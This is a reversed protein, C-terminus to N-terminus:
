LFQQKTCQMLLYIYKDLFIGNWNVKLVSPELILAMRIYILKWYLKYYSGRGIKTYTLILLLEIVDFLNTDGTPWAYTFTLM